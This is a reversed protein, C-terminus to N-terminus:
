YFWPPQFKSQPYAPQYQPASAVANNIWTNIYVFDAVWLSNKVRYLTSFTKCSTCIPVCAPLLFVKRTFDVQIVMLSYKKSIGQKKEVFGCNALIGPTIPIPAIRKDGENIEFVSLEFDTHPIPNNHELQIIPNNEDDLDLSVGVVKKAIGDLLIFNGIRLETAKIL